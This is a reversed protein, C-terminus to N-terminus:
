IKPNEIPNSEDIVINENPENRELKQIESSCNFLDVKQNISFRSLSDEINNNNKM